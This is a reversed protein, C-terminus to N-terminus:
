VGKPAWFVDPPIALDRATAQTAPLREKTYAHRIAEALFGSYM